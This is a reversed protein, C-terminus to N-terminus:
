HSDGNTSSSDLIEDLRESTEAEDPKRGSMDPRDPNESETVGDQLIDEVPRKEPINKDGPKSRGYKMREILPQWNESKQKEEMPDVMVDETNGCESCEMVLRVFDLELTGSLRDHEM